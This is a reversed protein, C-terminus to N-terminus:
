RLSECPAGTSKRQIGKAHARRSRGVHPSDDQEQAKRHRFIREPQLLASSPRGKTVASKAAPENLKGLTPMVGRRIRM